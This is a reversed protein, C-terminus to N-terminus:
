EGWAEDTELSTNARFDAIYDTVTQEMIQQGNVTAAVAGGGAGNGGCGVLGAGLAVTLMAAGAGKLASSKVFSTFKM